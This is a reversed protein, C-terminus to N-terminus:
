QEMEWPMRINPRFGVAQNNMNEFQQKTWFWRGVPDAIKAAERRIIVDRPVDPANAAYQLGYRASDAPDDGVYNESWDVKLVDEPNREMDRVLTPLCEILKECERSIVWKGEDLLQSMFRWGSIRSGPSSDAPTPWPIHQPLGEGILQTIPKQTEKNLKGFADWSFSFHEIARNGCLEGIKEGLEKEPIHRGWIEKLTYVKGEDDMGHLHIVAPHYDGWDGSLWYRAWKSALEIPAVTHREYDFNTFYQGQFKGWLGHLWADRLAQSTLSSLVNGFETHELFFARRKEDPWSYFTEDTVGASELAKRAWEVNDWAFAQVFAWKNKREEPRLNGDVFVRKLYELGRPPLGTESMGPMFTYLMGPTIKSNSTCRNSGTLGELEAQSFEQAEDVMIDAFEASYYASMDAAHEASGFFLISGNPLRLEKNQENWCGQLQPFEQFLKVIHSRRLEPHTRRLILGTTNAYTMRRLLMLRRGAGSKSGGRAGGFGLRTCKDAEWLQWIRSQKPQLRIRLDLM